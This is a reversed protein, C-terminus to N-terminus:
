ESESESERAPTPVTASAHVGREGAVTVELTRGEPVCIVWEVRESGGDAALHGIRRDLHGTVPAPPPGDAAALRVTPASRPHTEEGRETVSTSVRGQNVVTARVRVGGGATRDASLAGVEVAPRWRAFELLFDGVREALDPLEEPPPNGRKVADWGGVEVPGLQPHDRETWGAFLGYEPNEDHYALLAENARRAHEADSLALDATELGLHNYCLGLEVVFAPVGLREYAFDKFSGRLAPGREEGRAEHYGALLPRDTLEAGREGIREVLDADAASEPDPRRAEGPYFLAPNGTHLDAVGVVNSHDLLFEALARTEPEALPYQGEGVWGYREWARSPFNRNFDNRGAPGSVPRGRDDPVTGEVTQRYFPGDDGPKRPRTARDDDLAVRDGDPTEWRMQRVRGDGTLDAPHVEDPPLDAPDREIARSRVSRDRTALVHAAGDPAVRPVVYLVGDDLLATIAPTEGYERVLRRLFRVAVATGALERAHMNATVFLGPRDGLPPEADRNAVVACRIPRDEPTRGLTRLGVLGRDGAALESLAAALREEGYFADLSTDTM